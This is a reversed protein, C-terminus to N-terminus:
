WNEQKTGIIWFTYIYSLYDSIIPLVIILSVIDIYFAFIVSVNTCEININSNNGKISFKQEYM